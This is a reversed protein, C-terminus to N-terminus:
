GKFRAVYTELQLGNVKKLISSLVLRALFLTKREPVLTLATIFFSTATNRHVGVIEATTGAVFMRLLDM